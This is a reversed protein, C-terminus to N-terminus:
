QDSVSRSIWSKMGKGLQCFKLNQGRIDGKTSIAGSCFLYVFNESCFQNESKGSGSLPIVLSKPGKYSGEAKDFFCSSGVGISESHKVEELSSELSEAKRADTLEIKLGEAFAEMEVLM